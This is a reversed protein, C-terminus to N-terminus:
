NKEPHMDFRLEPIDQPLVYVNDEYIKSKITAICTLANLLSEESINGPAPIADMVPKGSLGYVKIRLKGSVSGSSVAAGIAFLGNLNVDGKKTSVEAEIRLMIGIKKNVGSIKVNKYSIHDQQFIVQKDSGVLKSALYSLKGDSEVMFANTVVEHNALEYLAYNSRDRLNLSDFNPIILEQQKKLEKTGPEDLMAPELMEMEIM